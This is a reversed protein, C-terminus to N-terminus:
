VHQKFRFQAHAVNGHQQSQRLGGNGVLKTSLFTGPQDFGAPFPRGYEVRQRIVMHFGDDVLSEIM